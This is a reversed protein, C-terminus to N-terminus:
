IFFCSGFNNYNVYLTTALIRQEELEKYDELAKDM